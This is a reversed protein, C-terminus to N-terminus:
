DGSDDEEDPRRRKWEDGDDVQIDRVDQNLRKLDREQKKAVIILGDELENVRSSNVIMVGVTRYLTAMLPLAERLADEPNKGVLSDLREATARFPEYMAQEKENFDDSM